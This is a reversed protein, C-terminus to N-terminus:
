DAALLNSVAKKRMNQATEEANKLSLAEQPCLDV